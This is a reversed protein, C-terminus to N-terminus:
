NTRSLTCYLLLSSFGAPWRLSPAVTHRHGPSNVLMVSTVMSQEKLLGSELNNRKKKIGRRLVTSLIQIVDIVSGWGQKM